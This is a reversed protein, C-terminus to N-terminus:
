PAISEAQAYAGIILYDVEDEIAQRIDRIQKEDSSEETTYNIVSYSRFDAETEITEKLRIWYDHSLPVRHYPRYYPIIPSRLQQTWLSFSFQTSIQFPRIANEYTEERIM